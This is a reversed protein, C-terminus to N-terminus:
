KGDEPPVSIMWPCVDAGAHKPAGKKVVTIRM